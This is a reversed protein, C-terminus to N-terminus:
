RGQTHTLWICGRPPPLGCGVSKEARAATDNLPDCFGRASASAGRAATRPHSCRGSLPAHASFHSGSPASDSRM